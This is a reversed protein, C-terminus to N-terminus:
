EEDYAGMEIERCDPNSLCPADEVTMAEFGAGSRQVIFQAACVECVAYVPEFNAPLSARTQASCYPCKAIEETPTRANTLNKM